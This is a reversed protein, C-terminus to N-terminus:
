LWLLFFFLQDPAEGASRRGLATRAQRGKSGQERAPAEKRQRGRRTAQHIDATFQTSASRWFRTWATFPSSSQMFLLPYSHLQAVFCHFSSFGELANAVRNHIEPIVKRCRRSRVPPTEIRRHPTSAIRVDDSHSTLPGSGSSGLPRPKVGEPHDAPSGCFYIAIIYQKNRPTPSQVDDRTDAARM